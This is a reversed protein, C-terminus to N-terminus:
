YLWCHSYYLIYKFDKKGYAGVNCLSGMHMLLSGDGDLCIIRKKTASTAFGLSVSSTHGMGGVM